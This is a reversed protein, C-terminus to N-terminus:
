KLYHNQMWFDMMTHTTDYVQIDKQRKWYVPSQYSQWVIGYIVPFSQVSKKKYHAGIAKFTHIMESESHADTFYSVTTVLHMEM